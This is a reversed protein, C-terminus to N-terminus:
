LDYGKEASIQDLVERIEPPFLEDQDRSITRQVRMIDAITHTGRFILKLIRAYGAPDLDRQLQQLARRVAVRTVNLEDDLNKAQAQYLLDAAEDVNYADEYFSPARPETPRKRRSAENHSAENHRACLAKQSDRLAWCRCRRGDKRRATCQRAQPKM